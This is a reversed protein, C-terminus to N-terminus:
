HITHTEIIELTIESLFLVFLAHKDPNLISQNFSMANFVNWNTVYIDNSFADVNPNRRSRPNDFGLIAHCMEHIMVRLRNNYSTTFFPDYLILYSREDEPQRRHSHTGISEAYEYGSSHGRVFDDGNIANASRHVEYHSSHRNLRQLNRHILRFNWNYNSIHTHPRLNSTSSLFTAFLSDEILQRQRPILTRGPTIFDHMLYYARRILQIAGHHAERVQTFEADNFNTITTSM